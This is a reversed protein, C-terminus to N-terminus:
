LEQETFSPCSGIFGLATDYDDRELLRVADNYYINVDHADFKTRILDLLFKAGSVYVDLSLDPM